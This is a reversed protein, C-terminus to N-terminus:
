VTTKERRLVYKREGREAPKGRVEQSSMLRRKCMDKGKEM